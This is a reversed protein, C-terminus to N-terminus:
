NCSHVLDDSGLTEGLESSNVAPKPEAIGPRNLLLLTFWCFTNNFNFNNKARGGQKLATDLFSKNDQSVINPFEM